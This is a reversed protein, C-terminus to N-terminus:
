TAEEKTSEHAKRRARNHQSECRRGECYRQSDHAIAFFWGCYPCQRYVIRGSMIEDLLSMFVADQVTYADYGITKHSLEVRSRMRRDLRGEIVRMAIAHLRVRREESTDPISDDMVADKPAFDANLRERIRGFCRAYEQETVPTSRSSWEHALTLAEVFRAEMTLDELNTAVLITRVPVLMRRGESILVLPDNEGRCAFPRGYGSIGYRDAFAVADSHEGRLRNAFDRHIPVVPRGPHPQGLRVPMYDTPDHADQGLMREVEELPMNPVESRALVQLQRENLRQALFPAEPKSALQVGMTALTGATLVEHGARWKRLRGRLLDLHTHSVAHSVAEEKGRKSPM